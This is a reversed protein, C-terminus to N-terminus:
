RRCIRAIASHTMGVAEAITRLSAGEARWERIAQDRNGLAARAEEAWWAAREPTETGGADKSM